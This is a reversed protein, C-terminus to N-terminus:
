PKEIFDKENNNVFVPSSEPFTQEAPKSGSPEFNVRITNGRKVKQGAEPEQGAVIGTGNFELNLDLNKLLDAVEVMTLGTLNPMTVEGEVKHGGLSELDLLVTTGGLIEAGPRPLQGRIINGDGQLQYNLGNSVLKKIGENVPYNIVNPAKVKVRQEEYVFPNQPKKLGPTEPIQLYHLVDRVVAQFVPAAVQSGYYVGGQPEAVMVLAAIRPEEVPAFGVFSAVYRGAVYGGGEGVVQATGTKGAVRYGEIFANKGTGNKVVNELLACVEQAKESSIVRRVQEPNFEKVVSGSSDQIERVVQPRLLVGGNAVASVATLLQIPTVAISQGIAMTAINLNTAEKEPIIIGKEEGPLDVGTGQGFGFDKVYKYFKQIGLRLGVEVFGCNCSNAVVEKFTQSGHGGDLWCRIFRDAVKIYGPDFFTDSSKVVKEELGAAMTLIKFTSGPEYNYWIAPNRDWVQSSTKSWDNSNFNPRNGVALIEGTRPDMLMIVALKPHFKAVIKDLEREVFQQITEDVTLILNDGQRPQLYKHFPQPIDQGVADQEIIIRGPIGKLQQDFTKEIGTLGQNDIGAFGLLHPALTQFPYYRKNEEVFFIGSINLDKIAQVTKTELKRGLWEFCSKRTLANYIYSVDRNLLPSLAEAAKQPETVLAPIAYLSDVSINTVLERGNRDYINGRRAEVPIDRSRIELAKNQLKEGWVFQIWALRGILFVLALGSIILVLTLRKRIVTITPQM